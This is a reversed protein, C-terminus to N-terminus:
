LTMPRTGATNKVTVPKKTMFKTQMGEMWAPERVMQAKARSSIIGSDLTHYRMELFVSVGM